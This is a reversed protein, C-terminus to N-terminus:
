DSANNVKVWYGFGNEMMFMPTFIIPLAPDYTITGGDFGTIFVLDGNIILDTFYTAATQSVDPPYAVLNWGADLPKRFDDALCAGEVILVDASNVKVWYGFGDAVEQLTNFFVPIDPTFTKIGGNALDFSTVFELNGALPVNFLNQVTKDAPSVDLSILNWGPNLNITQTCVDNPNQAYLNQLGMLAILLMCLLLLKKM